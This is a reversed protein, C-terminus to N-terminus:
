LASIFVSEAHKRPMHVKINYMKEIYRVSPNVTTPM